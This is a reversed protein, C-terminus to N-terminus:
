SFQQIAWFAVDIDVVDIDVAHLIDVADIGVRACSVVFDCNQRGRVSNSGFDSNSTM